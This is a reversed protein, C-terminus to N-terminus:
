LGKGTSQMQEKTAEIIELANNIATIQGWVFFYYKEDTSAHESKLENEYYNKQEELLEITKM